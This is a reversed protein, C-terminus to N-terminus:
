CAGKPMSLWAKVENRPQETSAVIDPLGDRDLDAIRLQNTKGWDDILVHPEYGGDRNMFRVVLGGVDKRQPSVTAVLDPRGDRDLDAVQVEFWTLDRRRSMDALTALKWEAGLNRLVHIGAYSGFVFDTRGDGDLDVAQGHWPWRLNRAVVRTEWGEGRRYAVAVEGAKIDTAVIDLRGDGDFDAIALGRTDAWKAPKMVPHVSWDSLRGPNELWYVGGDYSAVAIDADGDGDIDAIAVEIPRPMEALLRMPWPAETAGDGPNEFALVRDGFLDIIAVDLRGTGNLDGLANRELLSYPENRFPKPTRIDDALTSERFEGGGTNELLYIAAGTMAPRAAAHRPHYADAAVIDPRGNGTLDGTAIGYSYSFGSRVTKERYCMGDPPFTRYPTIHRSPFAGLALASCALALSIALRRPM